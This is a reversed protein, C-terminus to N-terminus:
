KPFKQAPTANERTSCTRLQIESDPPALVRTWM